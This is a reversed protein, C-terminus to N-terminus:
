VHDITGYDKVEEAALFRGRPIGYTRRRFSSKVDRKRRQMALPSRSCCYYCCCAAHDAAAFLCCLLLLLLLLPLLLPWCWFAGYVAGTVVPPPSPLCAVVADAAAGFLQVTADGNSRFSLRRRNASCHVTMMMTMMM